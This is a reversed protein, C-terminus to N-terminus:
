RQNEERRRRCAGCLGRYEVRFEHAEFGTRKMVEDATVPLPQDFDIIAGCASCILNAHPAINTDFRNEVENFEIERILGKAVLTKLTNYITTLSIKPERVRVNEYVQRASPHDRRGALFEVIAKRQGTMRSGVEKLAELMETETLTRGSSM